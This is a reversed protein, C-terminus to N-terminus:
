RRELYININPDHTMLYGGLGNKASYINSMMDRIDLFLAISESAENLETDVFSLSTERFGIQKLSEIPTTNTDTFCDAIVYGIRTQLCYHLAAKVLGMYIGFPLHRSRKKRFEPLVMLRQCEILGANLGDTIQDIPAFQEIPLGLPSNHVLRMVGAAVGDVHALLYLSHPHYADDYLVPRDDKLWAFEQGYVRRWINDVLALEAHTKAYSITAQARESITQRLAPEAATQYM